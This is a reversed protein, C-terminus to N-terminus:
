GCVLSLGDRALGSGVVRVRGMGVKFSPLAKRNASAKATLPEGVGVAIDAGDQDVAKGISLFSVGPTNEYKVRASEFSRHGGGHVDM